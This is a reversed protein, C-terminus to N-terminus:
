GEAESAKTYFRFVEADEVIDADEVAVVKFVLGKKVVAQVEVKYKDDEDYEDKVELVDPSILWWVEGVNPVDSKASRHDVVDAAEQAGHKRTAPSMLPAQSAPTAPSSSIGTPTAAAPGQKICEYVQRM